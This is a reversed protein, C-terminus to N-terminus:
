DDLSQQKLEFYVERIAEWTNSEEETGYKYKSRMHNEWEYLFSELAQAKLMTKHLAKDDEDAM